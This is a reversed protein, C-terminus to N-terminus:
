HWNRCLSFPFQWCWPLDWVNISRLKVKLEAFVGDELITGKLNEADSSPQTSDITLASLPTPLRCAVSETAFGANTNRSGQWACLQDDHVLIVLSCIRSIYPSRADSVGQVNNKRKECSQPFRTRSDIRPSHM